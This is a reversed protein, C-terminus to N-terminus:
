FKETGSWGRLNFSVLPCSVPETFFAPSSPVLSTVWLGAISGFSRGTWDSAVAKNPSWFTVTLTEYIM